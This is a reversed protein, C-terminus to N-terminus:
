CLTGKTDISLFDFLVRKERYKRLFTRSTSRMRTGRFYKVPSIREGYPVEPMLKFSISPFAGKGLNELFHEVGKEAWNLVFSM